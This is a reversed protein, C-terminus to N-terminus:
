TALKTGSLIEVLSTQGIRRAVDLASLGRYRLKSYDVGHKKMMRTGDVDGSMVPLFAVPLEGDGVLVDGRAGLALLRKAAAVDHYQLAYALATLRENDLQDIKEGAVMLKQATAVTRDSTALLYLLKPGAPLYVRAQNLADVREPEQSNAWKVYLALGLMQRASSDECSQNLAGKALDIAGQTEGRELLLFRAYDTSYCSGPGFESIRQKYLAEMGGLDKRHKLIDLLDYYAARRARRDAEDAMPQSIAMKYKAIADDIRGQAVRLQGWDKWLWLDHADSRSVETFLTEAESFRRQNVYINGLLQKAKINEPQIQLSSTLLTEAQHLGEPGSDAKAVARAMQVYADGFKPNQSILRELMLKAQNIQSSEESDIYTTAAKLNEDPSNKAMSQTLMWTEFDPWDISQDVVRHGVVAGPTSGRFEVSVQRTVSKQNPYPLSISVHHAGRVVPSYASMSGFGPTNNGKPLLSIQLHASSPEGTYFYDIDAKWIGAVDQYVTLGSISNKGPLPAPRLFQEVYGHMLSSQYVYGFLLILLIVM